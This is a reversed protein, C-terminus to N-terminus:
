GNGAQRQMRKRTSALRGSATAGRSRASVPNFMKQRDLDLNLDPLTGPACAERRAPKPTASFRIEKEKAASPHVPTLFLERARPRTPWTAAAVAGLVRPAIKNFKHM